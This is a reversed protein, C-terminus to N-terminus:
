AAHRAGKRALLRVYDLDLEGEAGWGRKGEPIQPRFNEYLSYAKQALEDPDYAHALEEFAERALPLARGFKEELYRLVSEPVIPKEKTVARLGAGTSLATMPRGLLTITVLKGPPPPPPKREPKKRRPEEYIGLRRGKSQANLGALAKGFTLAEQAEYGLREAVVVAWLTLVPARNIIIKQEGM